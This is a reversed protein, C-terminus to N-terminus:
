LEIRENRRWFFNLLQCVKNLAIRAASFLSLVADASFISGVCFLFSALSLFGRPASLLFRLQDSSEFFSFNLSCFIAFPGLFFLGGVLGVPSMRRSRIIRIRDTYSELVQVSFLGALVRVLAVTTAIIICIEFIQFDVHLDKAGTKESLYEYQRHLLEFRPASRVDLGIADFVFLFCKDFLFLSAAVLPFYIGVRGAKESILSLFKARFLVQSRAQNVM